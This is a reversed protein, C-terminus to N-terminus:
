GGICVSSSGTIIATVTPNVLDGLRAVPQCSTGGNVTVAPAKLAFTTGAELTSGHDIKEARSGHVTATEDGDVTETRQGHSTETLDHDVVVITELPQHSQRGVSEVAERLERWRAGTWTCIVVSVTLASVPLGDTTAPQPTAEVGAAAGTM